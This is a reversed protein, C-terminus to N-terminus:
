KQCTEDKTCIRFLQVRKNAADVVYLLQDTGVWIGSIGDFQGPQTGHQGFDYLPRGDPRFVHVCNLEPDSVYINQNEDVALGARRSSIEVKIEHRFHGHSDLIQVRSNGSDLVAINGGTIVIQTPYRFEGPGNGGFRKGWRGLIHGKKDLLFILHRFTDCVYIHGTDPDVALGRPTDFYSESGRSRKLYRFFKGRSNYVLVTHLEIDSVYVEGGRDTAIGMPSRLHEGGELLSYKSNALDFIHVVGARLDTVFMRHQLDTTVASPVQLADPIPEATKPGAIIDLSRNLIPHLDQKLDEPSAIQRVFVLHPPAKQHPTDTAVVPNPVSLCCAAWLVFWVVPHRYTM